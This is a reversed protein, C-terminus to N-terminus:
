ATEEDAEKWQQRKLYNALLKYLELDALDGAVKRLESEFAEDAVSDYQVALVQYFAERFRQSNEKNAFKLRFIEQWQEESYNEQVGWLQHLKESAKQYLSYIETGEPLKISLIIHPLIRSVRYVRNDEETESSVDILALSIGRKLQQTYDPLSECVSELAAMPVPIEYVLCYSLIKQLPEDILQYLEDWIVKETWLGPNQELETLKTEFNPTGLIDNIHELLRPNGDALLLVRERLSESIQDSDFNKLRNIKKTLVNKGFRDLGQKYFYSM